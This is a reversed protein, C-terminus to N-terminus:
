VLLLVLLGTIAALFICLIATTVVGGTKREYSEVARLRGGEDYKAYLAERVLDSVSRGQEEALAELHEYLEPTTAFSRREM